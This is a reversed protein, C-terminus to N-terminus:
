YRLNDIQNFNLNVEKLAPFMNVDGPSSLKNHSLSIFEVLPMCKFDLSSHSEFKQIGKNRLIIQKIDNLEEEPSNELIYEPRLKYKKMPQEDKNEEVNDLNINLEKLLAKQEEEATLKESKQSVSSTKTPESHRRKLHDLLKMQSAFKRGCNSFPCEYPDEEVEEM